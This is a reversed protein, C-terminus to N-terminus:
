RTDSAIYKVLSRKAVPLLTEDLPFTLETEAAYVAPNPLDRNNRILDIKISEFTNIFNKQYSSIYRTHIGRYKEAQNEFITIRYEYVKTDINKGDRIFLYGEMPFLPVIGVPSISLQHEVFEYIEKGEKLSNSMEEISYTIINGIEGMISDDRIIKEYTLKLKQFDADTLREPFNNQLAEKNDRFLLLNNYHFVLDALQPYLRNKHFHRNIEKLYALLVYKKFEFDILGETFWNQSLTKM